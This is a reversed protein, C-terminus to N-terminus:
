GKPRCVLVGPVFATGITPISVAGMPTWGAPLLTTDPTLTSADPKATIGGSAKVPIVTCEWQAPPQPAAPAPDEALAIAVLLLM